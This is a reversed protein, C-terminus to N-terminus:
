IQGSEGNVHLEESREVVDKGIRLSLCSVVDGAVASFGYLGHEVCHLVVEGSAYRTPKLLVEGSELDAVSLEFPAVRVDSADLLRVRIDIRDSAGSEIDLHLRFGSDGPKEISLRGVSDSHSVSGSNSSVGVARTAYTPQFQFAPQPNFLEAVVDAAQSVIRIATSGAERLCAVAIDVASPAFAKQLLRRSEDMAPGYIAKIREQPLPAPLGEWLKACLAEIDEESTNMDNMM